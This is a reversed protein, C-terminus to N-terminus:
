FPSNVNPTTDDMYISGRNNASREYFCAKTGTGTISEFLSEDCTMSTDSPYISTWEQSTDINAGDSTFALFAKKNTNCSPCQVSGGVDDYYIPNYDNESAILLTCSTLCDADNGGSVIDSLSITIDKYNGNGIGSDFPVSITSMVNPTLTVTSCSM